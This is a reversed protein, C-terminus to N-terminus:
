KILQAAVEPHAAQAAPALRTEILSDVQSWVRPDCEISTHGKFLLRNYWPYARCEAPEKQYRFEFNGLVATRLPDAATIHARGHIIGKSQYLNIAEAVNTPIVSDDQRHKRVSDVQITLAVPIGDRELERALYIVASAGWSHGFLIIRPEPGSENAAANFWAVVAHHANVRQRNRFVEVQASDPYTAELHRALQVESHRLDDSHVFGGVFGIVLTRTSKRTSHDRPNQALGKGSSFLLLTCAIVQASLQVRSMRKCGKITPM